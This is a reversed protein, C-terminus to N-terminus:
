KIRIYDRRTKEEIIIKKLLSAAKMTSIEPPLLILVTLGLPTHNLLTTLM